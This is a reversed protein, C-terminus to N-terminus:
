LNISNVWKRHRRSKRQSFLWKFYLVPILLFLVYGPYFIFYIVWSPTGIELLTSFGQLYSIIYVSWYIVFLLLNLREVIFEEVKTSWKEWFSSIILFLCIVVAVAATIQYFLVPMYVEPIHYTWNFGWSFRDDKPIYTLIILSFSFLLVGWSVIKKPM